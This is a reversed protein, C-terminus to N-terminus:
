EDRHRSNSRLGRKRIGVQVSRNQMRPNQKTAKTRETQPQKVNKMAKPAKVEEEVQPVTNYKQVRMMFFIFISLLGFACSTLGFVIMQDYHTEQTNTMHDIGMGLKLAIRGIFGNNGESADEPSNSFHLYDRIFREM